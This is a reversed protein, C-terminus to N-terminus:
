YTGGDITDTAVWNENGGGVNVLVNGDDGDPMQTDLYVWATGNHGQFRQTNIRVDGEIPTTKSSDGITLAGGLILSEQTTTGASLTVLNETYTTKNYLMDGASRTVLGLLVVDTRGTTDQVDYGGLLVSRQAKFNVTRAQASTWMINGDGQLTIPLTGGGWTDAHKGYGGAFNLQSTNGGDPLVHINQGSIFGGEGDMENMIGFVSSYRGRIDNYSGVCILHGLGFADDRVLNNNGAVFADDTIVINTDGLVSSAGADTNAGGNVVITQGTGPHYSEQYDKWTASEGVALGVRNGHGTTFCYHSNSAIKNQYGLGASYQSAIELERGYAFATTANAGVAVQYGGAFSGWGAAKVDKGFAVSSGGTAGLYTPNGTSWSGDIAWQGITGYNASTRGILAWGGTGVVGNIREFGTPLVGPVATIGDGTSNVTLVYNNLGSYDNFTDTLALFTSAGGVNDSLWFIDGDSNKWWLDDNLTGFYYTGSVPNDISAPDEDKTIKHIIELNLDTAAKNITDRLKDNLHSATIRERDEPNNRDVATYWQFDIPTTYTRTAM